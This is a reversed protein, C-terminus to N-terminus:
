RQSALLYMSTKGSTVLSRAEPSPAFSALSAPTLGSLMIQIKPEPRLPLVQSLLM